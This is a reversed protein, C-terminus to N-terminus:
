LSQLLQQPSSASFRQQIRSWWPKDQLTLTAAMREGCLSLEVPKGSKARQVLDALVTADLQAWADLWAQPDDQLAAARLVDVCDLNGAPPPPTNSPTGTGSAWFANVTSVRRASRADNVPHTYLLMQMENQLRRIPRAQEQQPMWADVSGGAVRELSATPLDRFVPGFALWTSDSLPHLEIGDETFYGQMAARLTECETSSLNLAKPDQMAVHNSQVDLHCPTIWAWGADGRTKTLGLHQADIAAWPILGDGGQLGRSNARLREALPTLADPSGPMPPTPTLLGLLENLRPLSVQAIAQQCHPGPPAAHSILVHMIQNDRM